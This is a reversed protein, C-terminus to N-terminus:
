REYFSVALRDVVGARLSETYLYNEVMVGDVPILSAV